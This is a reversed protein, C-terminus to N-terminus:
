SVLSAPAFLGDCEAISTFRGSDFIVDGLDQRKERSATEVTCGEQMKTVFLAPMDLLRFM